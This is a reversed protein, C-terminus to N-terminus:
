MEVEKIQKKLVATRCENEVVDYLENISEWYQKRESDHVLVVGGESLVEHAVRLCDPRKRNLGDIFILDFKRGFKLPASVYGDNEGLLFMRVQRYKGLIGHWKQFWKDQHEVTFIEARPAHELMVLTSYGPGWELITEPQTIKLWKLLPQVFSVFESM